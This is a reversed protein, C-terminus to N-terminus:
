RELTSYIVTLIIRVMVKPKDKNEVGITAGIWANDKIQNINVNRSIHGNATPDLNWESCNGSIQCKYVTGPELVSPIYSVNARPAGVLISAGSFDDSFSKYLATSFGFYSERSSRYNMPDGFIKVNKADFNYGTAFIFVNTFAACFILKRVLWEISRDRM